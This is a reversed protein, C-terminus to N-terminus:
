HNKHGTPLCYQQMTCANISSIDVDYRRGSTTM